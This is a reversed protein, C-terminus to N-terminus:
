VHHYPLLLEKWTGDPLEVQIPLRKIVCPRPNRKQASRAANPADDRVFERVDWGLITVKTYGEKFELKDDLLQSQDLRGYLLARGCQVGDQWPTGFVNAWMSRALPRLLFKPVVDVFIRAAIDMLHDLPPQLHPPCCMPFDM